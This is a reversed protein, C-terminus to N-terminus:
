SRTVDFGWVYSFYSHLSTFHVCIILSISIYLSLWIFSFLNTRYILIGNMWNKPPQFHYGTRYPQNTIRSHSHKLAEINTANDALFLSALLFIATNCWLLNAM